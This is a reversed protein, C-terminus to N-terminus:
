DARHAGAAPSVVFTRPEAFGARAFRNRVAAVVAETREHDVLAIASGGFGGGM